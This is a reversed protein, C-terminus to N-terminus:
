IKGEDENRLGQLNQFAVESCSTLAELELGGDEMVSEHLFSKTQYTGVQVDESKNETVKQTM